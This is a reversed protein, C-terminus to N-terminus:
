TNSNPEKEDLIAEIDAETDSPLNEETETPVDDIPEAKAAKAKLEAKVDEPLKPKRIKSILMGLLTFGVISGIAMLLTQVLDMAALGTLQAYFFTTIISPISSKAMSGTVGKINVASGEALNAEELVESVEVADINSIDLQSAMHYIPIIGLTAMLGLSRTALGRIRRVRSETITEISKSCGPCNVLADFEEIVKPWTVGCQPCKQGVARRKAANTLRRTVSGRAAAPMREGLTAYNLGTQTPAIPSGASLGVGATRPAPNIASTSGTAAAKGAVAITVIGSTTGIAGPITTIFDIPETPVIVDFDISEEYRTWQQMITSKTVSQSATHSSAGVDAVEYIIGIGLRFRGVAIRGLPIPVGYEEALDVLNITEEDGAIHEGAELEGSLGFDAPTMSLSYIQVGLYYIRVELSIIRINKNGVDLSVGVNHDAGLDFEKFSSGRTLTQGDLTITVTFHPNDAPGIGIQASATDVGTLNAGLILM